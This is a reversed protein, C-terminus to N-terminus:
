FRLYAISDNGKANELCNISDQLCNEAICYYFSRGRMVSAPIGIVEELASTAYM